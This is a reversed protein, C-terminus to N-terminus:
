YTLVVNTLVSYYRKNGEASDFLEKFGRGPLLM